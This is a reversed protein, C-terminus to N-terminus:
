VIEGGQEGTECCSQQAYAAESGTHFNFIQQRPAPYTLEGGVNNQKVSFAMKEITGKAFLQNHINGLRVM